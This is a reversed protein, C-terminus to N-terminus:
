RWCGERDELLYHEQAYAGADKTVIASERLSDAFLNYLSALYFDVDWDHDQAYAMVEPIHTALGVAM